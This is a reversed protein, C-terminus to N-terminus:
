TTRALNFSITTETTSSKIELALKPSNMYKGNFRAIRQMTLLFGQTAPSSKAMHEQVAQLLLQAKEESIAVGNNAICYHLSDKEHAGIAIRIYGQEPSKLIGHIIANEVLPQLLMSPLMVREPNVETSVDVDLRIDKRRRQTELQVFLELTELESALSVTDRASHEFMSRMLRSFRSLYRMSNSRDNTAIFSQISNLSNYIFHPNMQARLVHHNLRELEQEMQHRRNLRRINYQYVKWLSLALMLIAFVQFWLQHWFAKAVVFNLENIGAFSSKSAGPYRVQFNYTGPSLSNFQVGALEVKKWEDQLPAFRYEFTNIPTRRYGVSEFTIEVSNQSYNLQYPSSKAAGSYPGAKVSSVYVLPIPAAKLEHYGVFALGLHSTFWIGTETPSVHKIADTPLGHAKSFTEIESNIHSLDIHLIGNNTALWLQQGKLTAHNVFELEPYAEPLYEQITEKNRFLVVGKSKSVVLLFDKQAETAIIRGSCVGHPRHPTISDGVKLFLGNLTGLWMSDNYFSLAETRQGFNQFYQPIDNLDYRSFQIGYSAGTWQICNNKDIASSLAFPGLTSGPIPKSREGSVGCFLIQNKPAAGIHSLYTGTQYFQAPKKYVHLSVHGSRYGIWTSDNKEFMCTFGNNPLDKPAKFMQLKLNRCYLLGNELTSFWFGGEHDKWISTVVKDRLLTRKRALTTADLVLVGGKKLGIYLNNEDDCFLANNMVGTYRSLVQGNKIRSINGYSGAYLVDDKFLYTFNVQNNISDSCVSFATKKSDTLWLLEKTSKEKRQRGALVSGDSLSKFVWPYPYEKMPEEHLKGELDILAMCAGDVKKSSVGLWMGENAIYHMNNLKRNGKELWRTLVEQFEYPQIKGNKFYSLAKNFHNFWISSDTGIDILFISNGLLGDKSSYNEFRSGNFRSVGHDTTVWIYKNPDQVVHYCSPSPVGEEVSYSTIYPAQAITNLSLFMLVVVPLSSYLKGKM